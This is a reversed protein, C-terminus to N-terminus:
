CIPISNLSKTVDQEALWSLSGSSMGLWEWGMGERKWLFLHELQSGVHVLGPAQECGVAAAERIGECSDEEDGLALAGLHVNGPHLSPPIPSHSVRCTGYERTACIGHVLIPSIRPEQLLLAARSHPM